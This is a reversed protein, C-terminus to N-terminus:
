ASHATKKKTRKHKFTSDNSRRKKREKMGGYAGRDKSDRENRGGRENRGRSSRQRGPRQRRRSNDSDNATTVEPMPTNRMMIYSLASAVQEATLGEEDLLESVLAQHNHLGRDKKIINLIDTKLSQNRKALMAKRTPPECETITAKTHKLIDSFGRQERPTMLLLAKGSRGARGTRGIRHIYTEPDQPIDYNVVHSVREVDIGRAAVDTAVLTTLHGEKFRNIVKERMTQSMDGNLAAALHGRAQLKEALEASTSKTRTFIVCAVCDELTFYGCLADLKHKNHIRMVSQEINAVKNESAKILITRANPIYRKAIKQIANPMTASFLASQREEPLQDLIWEIDEIFGMKLMEDAEDLVVNRIHSIDFKKRQMHDILRGPTGVIIQPGRALASNQIRYDQGGYITVARFGPINEGFAKIADTVQIALERTPALILAQAKKSKFDLQSLLPLAFAATKGSGTQAQAILNDGDLLMPISQAQIKTPKEFGMKDLTSLLAKPLGLSYFSQKNNNKPNTDLTQATDTM